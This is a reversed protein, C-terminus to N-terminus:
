PEEPEPCNCPIGLPKEEFLYREPRWARLTASEGVNGAVDDGAVLWFKKIWSHWVGNLELKGRADSTGRALIDGRPPTDTYRVLAYTSRPPLGSAQLTFAGSAENYVLKGSAGNKVIAWTAPNKAFLLLKKKGTAAHCITASLTILLAASLLIHLANKNIM